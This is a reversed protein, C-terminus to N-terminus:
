ENQFVLVLFVSPVFRTQADDRILLLHQLISLFAPAAPTGALSAKLMEFCEQVDFFDQVINDHKQTLEDYDDELSNKFVTFQRSLDVSMHEEKLMKDYVSLMGCRMFENRLHVRFDYDEVDLLVNVMQLCHKRLADQDLELGEVIARFRETGQQEAIHTLANLVDSQGGEIIALPAILRVAELM